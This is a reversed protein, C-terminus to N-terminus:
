KAIPTFQISEIVQDVVGAQAAMMEATFFRATTLYLRQGDLIYVQRFYIPTNEPNNQLFTRQIAPLGSVTIEEKTFLIAEPYQARFKRWENEDVLQVTSTGLLTYWTLSFNYGEPATLIAVCTMTGQQCTQNQSIDEENWDEPVSLQVGEAEILRTRSGSDRGLLLWGLLVLVGVIVLVAIALLWPSGGLRLPQKKDSNM